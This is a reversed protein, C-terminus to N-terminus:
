LWRWRPEMRLGNLDGGWVVQSYGVPITPYEGTILHTLLTNGALNTAMQAESDVIIGDEVDELTIPQGAIYLTADGSGVFTLKPRSPVDGPNYLVTEEQMIIIPPAEIAARKYPEVWVQVDAQWSGPFLKTFSVQNIIRGHYAYDPENGLILDGEGSLWSLIPQLPASPRNGIRITKLYGDYVAEGELLTLSGARGPVTVQTVREKARQIAPYTTVVVGMTRSDIGRWVFYPNM